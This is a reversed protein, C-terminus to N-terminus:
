QNLFLCPIVSRVTTSYPGCPPYRVLIKVVVHDPSDPSPIGDETEIQIVNLPDAGFQHYIAKMQHKSSSSKRIFKDIPNPTHQSDPQDHSHSKNQRKQPSKSARRSKNNNGERRGREDSDRRADDVREQDNNEIRVEKQQQRTDDVTSQKSRSKDHNHQKKQKTQRKELKENNDAYGAVARQRFRSLYSSKPEKTTMNDVQTFRIEYLRRELYAISALEHFPTTHQNHRKAVFVFASDM